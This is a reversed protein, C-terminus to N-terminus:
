NEFSKHLCDKLWETDMPSLTPPPPPQQYNIRLDYGGRDYIGEIIKQLEVIPECEEIELPLPFSPIKDRLSFGYLDAFPRQEARSILIRYDSNIDEHNQGIAEIPKGGRLLDIEVLHTLSGLIVQRKQQYANRGAGAVKNKPSLVEISTIVRGTGVERVELYREKVEEPMPLLVRKPQPILTTLAPSHTIKQATRSSFVVADPIGVLLSDNPTSLYTRIEIEIYYKPLLSPAVADAIAVILRSHFASWFNPSELYPNMGPFPFAM